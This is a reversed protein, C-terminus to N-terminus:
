LFNLLTQCCKKVETAKGCCSAIDSARLNTPAGYFSADDACYLNIGVFQNDVANALLSVNEVQSPSVNAEFSWTRM